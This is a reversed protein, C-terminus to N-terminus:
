GGSLRSQDSGFALFQEPTPKSPTTIEQQASMDQPSTISKAASFVDGASKNKRLQKIAQQIIDTPKNPISGSLATEVASEESDTAGFLNKNEPQREAALGTSDKEPQSAEATLRDGAFRSYSPAESPAPSPTSLDQTYSKKTQGM